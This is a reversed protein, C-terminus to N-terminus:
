KLDTTRPGLPAQSSIYRLDAPTNQFYENVNCANLMLLWHKTDVKLKLPDNRIAYQPGPSRNISRGSWKLPPIFDWAVGSLSLTPVSGSPLAKANPPHAGM